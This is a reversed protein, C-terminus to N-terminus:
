LKLRSLVQVCLVAVGDVELINVIVTASSKFFEM